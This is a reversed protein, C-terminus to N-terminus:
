LFVICDIIGTDVEDEMIREVQNEMRVTFDQM